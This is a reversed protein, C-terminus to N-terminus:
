KLEDVVKELELIRSGKILVIADKKIMEKLKTTLSSKDMFSFVREDPFRTKAGQAFYKGLEGITFVYDIQSPDIEEGIDIHTTIENEGTGFMDGLVVIKQKYKKFSYMTDLVSRLSIPNSKYSDNLIDFGNCKILENRMGTAEIKLMGEQIKELTINFYQAVAIAAAANYIQHNGLMSLFLRPSDSGVLEFYIGENESSILKVTYDNDRNIGFTVKKQKLDLKEVGVRLPPSDGFYIFLGHPKLGEIIELKAKLINEVSGLDNIHVNTSNTIIAVDSSAIKSLLEIEGLGSMGMEIVAIETNEAMELLTLPVGLHNNLNGLTKHTKYVTQLINFLIDKTSTKGNSGTIGIIKVNLQNRYAKALTQIADLTDEVLIFPFDINPIPQNKDWLTATAGNGMAKEIFEHGNFKEGIIPIYLQTDKITRTDISVGNIWIDEHSKKLGSGKVMEQIENLKRRIM